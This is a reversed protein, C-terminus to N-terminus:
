PPRISPPPAPHRRSPSWCLNGHADTVKATLSTETPDTEIIVCGAGIACPSGGVPLWPGLYRAEVTRELPRSSEEAGATAGSAAMLGVVTFIILSRRM